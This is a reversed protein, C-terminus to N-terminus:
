LPNRLSHLGDLHLTANLTLVVSHGGPEIEIVNIGGNSQRIERAKSIPLGLLAALYARNLINHGVMAISEGRHNSAIQHVVPCVRKQVDLFSEGNPYPSEGPNEFFRRHAEPDQAKAEEWTLGEWDGVDGEILGGDPIPGLDHFRCIAEATQMARTLPSSYVAQIALRQLARGASTAQAQGLDDLPLDSGRGQLKYPVFLNAATAGHRVLYVRTM